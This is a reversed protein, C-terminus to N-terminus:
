MSAAMAQIEIVNELDRRTSEFGLRREDTRLLIIHDEVKRGAMYLAVLRRCRRNYREEAEDAAKRLIDIDKLTTM